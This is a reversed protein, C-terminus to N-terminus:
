KNAFNLLCSSIRKRLSTQWCNRLKMLLHPLFEILIFKIFFNSFLLKIADAVQDHSMQIQTTGTSKGYKWVCTDAQVKRCVKGHDEELGGAGGQQASRGRKNRRSQLTKEFVSYRQAKPDLQHTSAIEKLLSQIILKDQQGSESPTIDLHYMSSIINSEIVQNSSSRYFPNSKITKTSSNKSKPNSRPSERDMCKTCSPWCELRRGAGMWATSYYIPSTTRM